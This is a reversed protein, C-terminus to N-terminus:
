RPLRAGLRAAHYLVVQPMPASAFVLTSTTGASKPHSIGTGPTSGSQAPAMRDFRAAMM